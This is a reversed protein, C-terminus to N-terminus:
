LVIAIELIRDKKGFGTTETDVIAYRTM